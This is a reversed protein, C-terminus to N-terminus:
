RQEFPMLLLHPYSEVLLAREEELWARWNDNCVARHYCHNTLSLRTCDTCPVNNPIILDDRHIDCCYCAFKKNKMAGGRCVTKQLSCMDAGQEVRIGMPYMLEFDNVERFFQSLYLL